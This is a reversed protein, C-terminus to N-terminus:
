QEVITLGRAALEVRYRREPSTGRSWLRGGQHPAPLAVVARWVSGELDRYSAVVGLYRTRVSAHRRVVRLEGPMMMFEQVDIVGDVASRNEGVLSFYDASRFGGAEALEFVRVKVPSSRGNATPNVGSDAVFGLELPVPLDPRPTTGCAALVTVLMLWLWIRIQGLRGVILRESLMSIRFLLLNLLRPAYGM